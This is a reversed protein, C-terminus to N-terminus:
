YCFIVNKAPLRGQVFFFVSVQSAMGPSPCYALLDTFEGRLLVFFSGLAPSALVSPSPLFDTFRYIRRLAFLWFTKAPPGAKILLLFVKKSAKEPGPCYALLDTFEGGLLLFCWLAPSAASSPLLYTFRCIRRPAFFFM